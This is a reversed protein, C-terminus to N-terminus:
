GNKMEASTNTDGRTETPTPLNPMTLKSALGAFVISFRQWVKEASAKGDVIIANNVGGRTDAPNGWWALVTRDTAPLYTLAGLGVREPRPLFIHSGDLNHDRPVNLRDAEFERITGGGPGILYHGPRGNCGFFLVFGTKALREIDAM